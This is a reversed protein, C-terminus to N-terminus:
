HSRNNKEFVKFARFHYFVGWCWVFAFAFRTFAIFSLPSPCVIFFCHFWQLGLSSDAGHQHKIVILESSWCRRVTSHSWDATIEPLERKNEVVFVKVKWKKLCKIYWINNQMVCTNEDHIHVWFLLLLSFLSARPLDLYRISKYM